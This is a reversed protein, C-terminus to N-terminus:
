ALLSTVWGQIERTTLGLDLTRRGFMEIEMDVIVMMTQIIGKVLHQLADLTVPKLEASDESMFDLYISRNDVPIHILESIAVIRSLFMADIEIMRNDNFLRVHGVKGIYPAEM